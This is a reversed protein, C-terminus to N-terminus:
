LKRWRGLIKLRERHLSYCWTRTIHFLHHVVDPGTQQGASIVDPLTSCDVLFQVYNPNEPNLYEFLLNKIIPLLNSSYKVTFSLLHHRTAELSPCYTLIHALDEVQGLGRCTPALCHGSQNQLWYWCLRETRYRGSLMLAQTTAKVVEYSSSGASLWLPHPFSLSM